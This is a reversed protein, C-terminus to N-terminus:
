AGPSAVRKRLAVIDDRHLYFSADPVESTTEHMINARDNRHERDEPRVNAAIDFQHGIEHVTTRARQVAESIRPGQNLAYASATADRITELFVASLTNGFHSTGLTTGEGARVGDNSNLFHPEFATSVYVSWFLDTKYPPDTPRPDPGRFKDFVADLGRDTRQVVHNAPTVEIQSYTSLSTLVPELYADAYRNNARTTSAQLMDYLNDDRTPDTLVTPENNNIAVWIDLNQTGTLRASAKIRLKDNTISVFDYVKGNGYYLVKGGVFRANAIDSRSITLEVEGNADPATSAMLTARVWSGLRDGNVSYDDDYLIMPDNVAGPAQSAIVQIEVDSTGVANGIVHYNRGGVRLLGGRFQDPGAQVGPAVVVKFLGNGIDEVSTIKGEVADGQYITFAGNEPKFQHVYVTLRANEGPTVSMIVNPVGRNDYLTAGVYKEVDGVPITQNTTVISEKTTADPNTVDTINGTLKSGWPIAKMRDREIHVRRWVSLQDTAKGTFNAIPGSTPVNTTDNLNQVEQQNCSAVVRFNDGPNFSTALEVEAKGQGDTNVAV